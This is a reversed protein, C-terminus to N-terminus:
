NAKVANRMDKKNSSKWIAWISTAVCISSYAGSVFGVIMCLAFNKTTDGGFFYLSCCAFLVTTLTYCSRHISQAISANALDAFTDSRKHTHTNERIRDFIVVSENMSYGIVTLIAALFSVDIELQFFSFVGLVMILDHFIAALSSFAIRYEFRFSIYAALVLFAIALNILAHETVESGIVAGVSEVRKVENQGVNKNLSEVVAASENADLNRTRIIVDKGSTENSEGSLQIIANELNFQKLDERVQAVQVPQNFVIEVITGGTYDIGFNFGRVFISVLSAIVLLSSLTFWWRHHKIVDFRM